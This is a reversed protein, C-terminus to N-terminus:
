IHLFHAVGKADIAGNEFCCDFLEGNIFNQRLHVENTLTQLLILNNLECYEFVRLDFFNELLILQNKFANYIM